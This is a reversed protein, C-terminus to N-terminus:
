GGNDLVLSLMASRGYGKIAYDTDTAPNAGLEGTAGPDSGFSVEADTLKEGDFPNLPWEGDPFLAKVQAKEANTAYIGDHLAGYDEMSLQFTHMASKVSAERAYDRVRMYNPIAMAAIIGIVVVVIM